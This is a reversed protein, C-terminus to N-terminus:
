CRGHARRPLPLLGRAGGSLGAMGNCLASLHRPDFIAFTSAVPLVDGHESFGEFPCPVAGSVSSVWVGGGRFGSLGAVLNCTGQQNGLDRHQYIRAQRPWSQIALTPPSDSVLTCSQSSVIMVHDTGSETSAILLSAPDLSNFRGLSSLRVKKGPDVCCDAQLCTQPTRAPGYLVNLCSLVLVLRNPILLRAVADGRRLVETNQVCTETLKPM